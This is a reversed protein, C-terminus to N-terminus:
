DQNPTKEAEGDDGEGPEGGIEEAAESAREESEFFEQLEESGPALGAAQQEAEAASRAVNVSAMVSVEPHLSIRVDHMGLAKIPQDLAVQRREIQYGAASLGDAIDRASVSGYLQGNEGAQRVLVIAVNDMKGAVASAETRRELNRAELEVRQEAFRRRNNDTARLAKGQPLLYNRAFGSKVKVVDGMQGLKEVRELLIVDM